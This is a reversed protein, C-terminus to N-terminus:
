TIRNSIPRGMELMGNLVHVAVRVETVRRADDRFRLGNGIMQKYRGIAAEVRSRKNYGSAKQWVMRGNRAIYLLHRDRHTPETEATESLVATSRPPMVIAADPDRDIVSRCVGDQDYACDGTFSAIPVTVQNLLPAVQSADDVDNTTLEAATIEGTDADMGIHLKRWSRRMKTGHKELLWEGAGCLKSGTSDVLLHVIAEETMWVTLSGRKVLASDYRPWNMVGYKAKAIRHRRSENFKYPM